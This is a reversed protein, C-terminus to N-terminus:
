LRPGRVYGDYTDIGKLIEDSDIKSEFVDKRVAGITGIPDLKTVNGVTIEDLSSFYNLVDTFEKHFKDSEEETLKLHANQTVGDLTDKDMM